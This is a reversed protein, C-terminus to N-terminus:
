CPDEFPVDRCLTELRRRIQDTQAATLKAPIRAPLAGALAKPNVAIVPDRAKDEVWWGPVTLVAAPSTQINLEKALHMRLWDANRLVQQVSETDRFGGPWVLADGTYIVPNAKGGGGPEKKRRTKTEIVAVWGPGVVVHDLNFKGGGGVCPVDHFISCGQAALPMLCDAVLREGALGLRALGMEYGTALVRRLTIMASLLFVAGASVILWISAKTSFFSSVWFPAAWLLPPVLIMAIIRNLLDDSLSAWKKRLEEGAQRMLLVDEGVPKRGLRRKKRIILWIALGGMM